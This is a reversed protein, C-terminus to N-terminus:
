DKKPRGGNKNNDPNLIAIIRSVASGSLQPYNAKLYSKAQQKFNSSIKEAKIIARQTINAIDLESSYYEDGPMLVETEKISSNRDDLHHRDIWLDTFNIKQNHAANGLKSNTICLQFKELDIRIKQPHVSQIQQLQGTTILQLKNSKTNMVFFQLAGRMGDSILQLADLESIDLLQLLNDQEVVVDSMCIKRIYNNGLFVKQM